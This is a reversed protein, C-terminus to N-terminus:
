VDSPGDIKEKKERIMALATRPDTLTRLIEAIEPHQRSYEMIEAIEAPTLSASM